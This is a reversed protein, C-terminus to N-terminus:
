LGWMQGATLRLSHISTFIHNKHADLAMQLDGFAGNYNCLDQLYRLAEPYEGKLGGIGVKGSSGVLVRRHTGTGLAKSNGGRAGSASQVKPYRERNQGEGSEPM